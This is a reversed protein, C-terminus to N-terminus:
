YIFNPFFFSFNNEEENKEKEDLILHGKMYKSKIKMWLTHLLYLVNIFPKIKKDSTNPFSAKTIERQSM